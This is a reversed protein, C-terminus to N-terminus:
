SACADTSSSPSPSNVIWRATWGGKFSRSFLTLCSLTCSTTGLFISSSNSPVYSNHSCASERRSCPRLFSLSVLMSPIVRHEIFKTKLLQGPSPPPAPLQRSTESYVSPTPPLDREDTQASTQSVSSERRSSPTESSVPAAGGDTGTIPGESRDTNISSICSDRVSPIPPLEPSTPDLSTGPAGENPQSASLAAALDEVGRWGRALHGSADHLGEFRPVRNLLSMNSCHLLEAYFECIRFRELTLPPLLGGATPRPATQLIHYLHALSKFCLPSLLGPSVPTRPSELLRQFDPLRHAVASLMVGLDVVAPGKDDEGFADDVSQRRGVAEAGEAELMEREEEAAQRRRAWALMQQEVFDSNNKRILDILVALSSLLSSTRLEAPSLADATESPPVAEHAAADFGSAATQPTAQDSETDVKSRSTQQAPSGEDLDALIWDLLTRVSKEDAIHRALTTDRWEFVAEDQGGSGGLMGGAGAMGGSPGPGAQAQPVAICIEIIGRLLDEAATHGPRGLASFPELMRIAQVVVGPILPSPPRSVRLLLLLVDNLPSCTPLLALLRAPLHPIKLIEALVKNSALPPNLIFISCYLRAASLVSVESSLPGDLLAGNVRAWFGIQQARAALQAETSGLVSERLSDNRRVTLLRSDGTDSACYLSSLPSVLFAPPFGRSSSLYAAKHM